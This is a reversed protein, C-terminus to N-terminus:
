KKRIGVQYFSIRLRYRVKSKRRDRLYAAATPGYIRGWIEAAEDVSGYDADFDVDRYGVGGMLGERPSTEDGFWADDATPNGPRQIGYAGALLWTLEGCMNAPGPGIQFVYGGRRTVRQAEGHDIESWATVAHDVSDDKLPIAGSSGQVYAINSIDAAAAQGVAFATVAPKLELAIVQSAKKALAISSRGTGAGIDLVVSGRLDFFRHLGEIGGVSSLAFRHYLDPLKEIIDDFEFYGPDPVVEQEATFKQIKASAQRPDTRTRV